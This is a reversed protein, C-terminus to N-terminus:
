QKETDRNNLSNYLIKEVFYLYESALEYTLGAINHAPMVKNVLRTIVHGRNPTNELVAHSHGHETANRIPSVVSQTMDNLCKLDELCYDLSGSERVQAIKKLSFEDGAASTFERESESIRKHRREIEEEPSYNAQLFRNVNDYLCKASSFATAANNAVSSAIRKRFPSLFTPLLTYATDAVLIKGTARVLRTAEAEIGELFYDTYKRRTESATSQSKVRDITKGLIM